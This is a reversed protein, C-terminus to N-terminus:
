HHHHSAGFRHIHLPAKALGPCFAGVVKELRDYLKKADGMPKARRAQSAAVQAALKALDVTLLKRNEVVLRGGIMVSHVGSGDEAHVIQNVPDNMPIWNVHHLDLFVIDAKYGPAIKGIQRALGLARAGGETGAHLAEETTIWVDHDPGQVKSSFSALRMAEYMNQNDSCSAGDTGIGVNVKRALMGRMDALGNGLRMNSGPNHAVSAGRDGLRKMDDSDLWVGHAVTFRDSVLGLEDMHAALSSGYRQYGAIVQVKSEAVHSHLGVDYEKALDRCSVLFADSCHHPITPALALHVNEFPWKQLAKKMQKTTAKWPAMKFSEVEKQLAPPLRDMLGPIAEFFSLDAVMPALVCRMGVDEYAKAMASLGEVSPLPFEAALDYAATCGKLVMEAAGIMASLYKDELNRGTGVWQSATLLLELSWRDHLGKGLNGPGHTHANVLGPHLLRHRADIVAAGEPAKLGPRGIEAITDGKILIDVPMASRKAIDLLKGGRIVTHTPRKPMDSLTAFM